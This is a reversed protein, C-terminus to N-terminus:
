PVFIIHKRGFARGAQPKGTYGRTFVTNDGAFVCLVYMIKERIDHKMDFM